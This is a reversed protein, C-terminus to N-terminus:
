TSGRARSCRTLRAMLADRYDPNDVMALVLSFHSRRTWLQRLRLFAGSHEGRVDVM